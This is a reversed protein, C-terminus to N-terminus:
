TSCPSRHTDPPPRRKSFTNPGIIWARGPTYSVAKDCIRLRCKVKARILGKRTGCRRYDQSAEEQSYRQVCM